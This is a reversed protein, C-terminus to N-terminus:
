QDYNSRMLGDLILIINRGCILGETIQLVKKRPYIEM